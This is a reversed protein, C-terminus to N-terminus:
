RKSVTFKVTRPTGATGSAGLPTVTASYSGSPLKKKGIKAPISVTGTGSLNPITITGERKAISCKTAHHKPKHPTCSKGKRYGSSIRSILVSFSAPASLSYRLKLSGGSKVKSASLSLGSLLPAVAPAPSPPPPSQTVITTSKIPVSVGPPYVILASPPTFAEVALPLRDAPNVDAIVAMRVVMGYDSPRLIYGPATEGSIPSCDSGDAECLEWQREWYTAPSAWAGVGGVLTSGIYPAGSLTPLSTAKAALPIIPNTPGSQLPASQGYKNEASVQVEITQGNDNSTPVYTSHTAGVIPECHAGNEDCVLWQYLIVIVGPNAPESFYWGGSTPEGVPAPPAALTDGEQPLAIEGTNDVIGPAESQVEGPLPGPAAGVVNSLVSDAKILSFSPFDNSATVVLRVRKGKDAEVPTYVQEKAGEINSCSATNSSTCRQWQYSYDIQETGTWNGPNGILQAGVKPETGAFLWTPLDAPQGDNVPPQFTLSYGGNSQTGALLTGPVNTFSSLAWMITNNGLGATTVPRWTIKGPVEVSKGGTGPITVNPLTGAWLGDSTAVYLRTQTQGSFEQIAHVTPTGSGGFPEEEGEGNASQWTTGGDISRYIGDSGTEAYIIAPNQTDQFVGLTIASEPIGDSSLSWTSGGDLSRFIGDSTAAWVFNAFNAFSWVTLGDEPMGNNAAPPKWTKGGDHSTYVGESVTGALMPSGPGPLSIVAQVPNNLKVPNQPDEEPGQAIPSWSGGPSISDPASWLDGSTAAFIDGSSTFLSYVGLSNSNLGDSFDSWHLGDDVSKWIGAGETGAYITTPPTGTAFTRVWSPNDIPEASPNDSLGILPTWSSLGARAKEAFAGLCGALLFVVLAYHFTRMRQVIV